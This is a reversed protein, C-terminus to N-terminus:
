PSLFDQLFVPSSGTHIASSFTQYRPPSSAERGIGSRIGWLAFGMILILGCSFAIMKSRSFSLVRQRDQSVSRYIRQKLADDATLGSLVNKTVEPLKELPTM